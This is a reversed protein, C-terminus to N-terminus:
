YFLTPKLWKLLTRYLDNPLVPKTIVENMGTDLCNQRDDHFVNGTMALIPIDQYHPLLRILQTAQLGDMIPMQVDMLILDYNTTTALNVAEQGNNAFDVNLGAVELLLERAIEQNIEDDEVLLIRRGQYDKKLSLVPDSHTVLKSSTAALPACKGFRATAWFTSGQGIRSDVGVTGGMLLALHQNITLGLGTGGYKRTTSNDAQEFAAFIRELKEAAIGQGTDQVAFRLLYDNATEEIKSIHLKIFGSETFKLANGIYNILIQAVRMPDGSIQLPMPDDIEYLLRLNKSRIQENFIAFVKAIVESILFPVQEISLQGAEIKSLDLIGNILSMLHNSANSIKSLMEKQEPNLDTNGLIHTYGIIANMPTRIEHSMNALFQSKALNANEAINKAKALAVSQSIDQIALVAGISLPSNIAALSYQITLHRGNRTILKGDYVKNTSDLNGFMILDIALRWNQCPEEDVLNIIEDIPKGIAETLHIGIMTSAAENMVVVCRKSDITVVGNSIAALTASFWQHQHALEHHLHAKQIALNAAQILLNATASAKELFSQAGANMATVALQIDSFGTLFVIACSNLEPQERIIQLIELGDMDPLRYDLLICDPKFKQVLNVGLTGSNAELLTYSSELYHKYLLRDEDSDDIILVTSKRPQM